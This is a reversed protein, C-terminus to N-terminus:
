PENLSLNNQTSADNAGPHTHDFSRAVCFCCGRRRVVMVVMCVCVTMFSLDPLAAAAAEWKGEAVLALLGEVVAASGGGGGWGGM